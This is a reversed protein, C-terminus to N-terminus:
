TVFGSSSGAYSGGVGICECQQSAFIFLLSFFAESEMLDWKRGLILPINRSWEDAAAVLFLYITKM